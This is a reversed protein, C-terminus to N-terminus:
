AEKTKTLPAKRPETEKPAHCYVCVTKGNDDTQWEARLGATEAYKCKHIMTM